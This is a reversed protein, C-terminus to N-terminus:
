GEAQRIREYFDQAMGPLVIYLGIRVVWKPFSGKLPSHMEYSVRTGGPIGEVELRGHSGALNDKDSRWIMLGQEPLKAMWIVSDFDRVPWPPSVALRYQTLAGARKLITVGSFIRLFQDWTEVDQLVAWTEKMNTDAVVQIRLWSIEETRKQEIREIHFGTSAEGKGPADQKAQGRATWGSLAFLALILLPCYRRSTVM